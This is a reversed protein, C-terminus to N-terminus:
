FRLCLVQTANVTPADPGASVMRFTDCGWNPSLSGDAPEARAVFGADVLGAISARPGPPLYTPSVILGDGHCAQQLLSSQTESLTM